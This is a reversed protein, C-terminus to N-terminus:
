SHLRKSRVRSLLEELTLASSPNQLYNAYRRDLEAIVEPSPPPADDLSAMIRGVLALKEGPSLRSIADDLLTLDM